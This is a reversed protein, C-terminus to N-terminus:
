YLHVLGSSHHVDVVLTASAWQLMLCWVGTGKLLVHLADQVPICFKQWFSGDTCPTSEEGVLPPIFRFFYLQVPTSSRVEESFTWHRTNREMDSAFAGRPTSARDRDLHVARHILGSLRIKGVGALIFVFWEDQHLPPWGLMLHCFYHLKLCTFWVCTEGQM